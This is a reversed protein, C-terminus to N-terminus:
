ACKFPVASIRNEALIAQEIVDNGGRTALPERDSAVVVNYKPDAMRLLQGYTVGVLSPPLGNALAQRLGTIVANFIPDTDSLGNANVPQTYIPNPHMGFATNMAYPNVTSVRISSGADRLAAALANAYGRLAAKGANYADLMSGGPQGFGTYYSAVSVTFIIRSYGTHPMLPLMANTVMVHGSYLTRMGLDRQSFYFAPDTPPLPLIQGIVGRGANNALIDVRGRQQFESTAAVRAPFTQVSAPDAVDLELLPFVPPNPVAAPNRSTGIVRAGLDLLTEGIARGNGRSAGTIVALKGNLSIQPKFNRLPYYEPDLKLRGHGAAAPSVLGELLSPAALSAAAIALPAKFLHRRSLGEEATPKEGQEGPLHNERDERSMVDEGPDSTLKYINTLTELPAAM